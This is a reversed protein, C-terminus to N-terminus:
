SSVDYDWHNTKSLDVQVRRGCQLAHSQEETTDRELRNLMRCANHSQAVVPPAWGVIWGTRRPQHDVLNEEGAIACRGAVTSM